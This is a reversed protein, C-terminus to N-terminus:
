WGHTVTPVGGLSRLPGYQREIQAKVDIKRLWMNGGIDSLTAYSGDRFFLDADWWPAADDSRRQFIRVRVTDDANRYVYDSAM